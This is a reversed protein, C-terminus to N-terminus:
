GKRPDAPLVVDHRDLAGALNGRTVPKALIEDCGAMQARVREMPKLRATALVLLTHTGRRQDVERWTQCLRTGAGGDRDDLAVDVFAAVFRQSAILPLADQAQNAVHVTFGFSRLLTCLTERGAEDADCVLVDAAAPECAAAGRSRQRARRVAARRQAKSAAPGTKVSGSPAPQEPQPLDVVPRPEPDSRVLAQIDPSCAEVPREGEATPGTVVDILTLVFSNRPQPMAAGGSDAPPSDAPGHATTAGLPPAIPSASPAPASPAASATAELDDLWIAGASPRALRQPQRAGPEDLRAGCRQCRDADVANMRRCVSCLNVLM